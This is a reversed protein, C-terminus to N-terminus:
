YYCWSQSLQVPPHSGSYCGSLKAMPLVLDPWGWPAGLGLPPPCSSARVKSELWCLNVYSMLFYLTTFLLSVPM